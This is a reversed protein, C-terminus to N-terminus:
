AAKELLLLLKREGCPVGQGPAFFYKSSGTSAGELVRKMATYTLSEYHKHINRPYQKEYYLWQRPEEKM